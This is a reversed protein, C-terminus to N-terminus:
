GFLMVVLRPRPAEVNFPDFAKNLRKAVVVVPLKILAELVVPKAPLKKLSFLAAPVSSKRISLVPAKCVRAEVVKCFKVASWDVLVFAVLVLKKAVVADLVFKNEESRVTPWFVRITFEAPLTPIPLLVGVARRPTFPIPAVEAVLAKCIASEALLTINSTRLSPETLRPVLPAFSWNNILLPAFPPPRAM